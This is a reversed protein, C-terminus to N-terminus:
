TDLVEFAGVRRGGGLVPPNAVDALMAAPHYPLLGLRGLVHVVAMVAVEFSGSWAKAAIGIGSQHAMGICGMAGIKVTGPVWKALVSDPRDGDATLSSYRYMADAVRALDPDTALRAFARALGPVTSRLTPVGCGDIGVPGAPAGTVEELFALVERQLPHDPATYDLPWGQAACARLMAAHKGSCNHYIRRELSDGLAAARRDADMSSPRSPPCRLDGEGLGAGALMERVYAIHVPHGSHSACAVALQETGLAAGYRESIAGQFPKAASRLFFEGELPGFSAVVTGDPAVAAVSVDHRAEILGSRVAGVQM